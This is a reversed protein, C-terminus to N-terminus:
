ELVAAVPLRPGDFRHRLGLLRVSNYHLSEALTAHGLFQMAVVNFTVPTEDYRFGLWVAQIYFRRCDHVSAEPV